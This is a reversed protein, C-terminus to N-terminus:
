SIVTPRPVPVWLWKAFYAYCYPNVAANEFEIGIAARALLVTDGNDVGGNGPHGGVANTLHIHEHIWGVAREVPNGNGFYSPLIFIENDPFPMPFNYKVFLDHRYHDHAFANQTTYTKKVTDMRGEFNGFRRVIPELDDRDSGDIAFTDLLLERLFKGVPNQLRLWTLCKRVIKRALEIDGDRIEDRDAPWSKAALANLRHLTIKDPDVVGDSWGFQHKQFRVIAQYTADDVQGTITLQPRPGGAGAPVLNLLEQVIQVDEVDNVAKRHTMSVGRGVPASINAM